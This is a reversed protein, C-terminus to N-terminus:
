RQTRLTRLPLTKTDSEGPSADTRGCDQRVSCLHFHLLYGISAEGALWRLAETPRLVAIVKPDIFLWLYQM